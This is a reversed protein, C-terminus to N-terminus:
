ATFIASLLQQHGMITQWSLISADKARSLCQNTTDADTIFIAISQKQHGMITQWSLISADKARSLCQNTTDADSCRRLHGSSADLVGGAISELVMDYRVSHIHRDVAASSGNYNAM